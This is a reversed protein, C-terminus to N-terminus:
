GNDEDEFLYQVAWTLDDYYPPIPDSVPKFNDDEKVSYSRCQMYFEKGVIQAQKAYKEIIIPAYALVANKVKVPDSKDLMDYFMEFEARAAASLGNVATAHDEIVKRPIM